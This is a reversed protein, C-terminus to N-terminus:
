RPEPRIEHHLPGGALGARCNELLHQIEVLVGRRSGGACHPTLIVNPLRALRDDPARPEVGHVDLAAGGLRGSALAAYLADEDVLRGRSTNVLFAGPKMAALFDRDVMGRNEPTDAAHLSIVDASALLGARPAYVVGLRAEEAAPLRRRNTYLVTMGFRGALGAVIAGVEGLGIIGLTQGYLGALRELGAWNYAVGETAEVRSPDWAGRRVARDAEILRKGLALMLLIAHEATYILTRRPLCSVRVNRARAADLDISDSREGLRQILRLRPQADMMAATVSGRRFVLIETDNGDRAGSPNKAEAVSVGDSPHLGAGLRYVEAPDVIEPAFFRELWENGGGAPGSLSLIAVRLVHDEDMFRIQTM